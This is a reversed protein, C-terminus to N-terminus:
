LLDIMQEGHHDPNGLLRHNVPDVIMDLGELAMQGLLVPSEDHVESVEVVCERGQVTLRVAEYIKFDFLGVPTRGKRTRFHQLGLQEILRKPISLLTAGTDAMADPIEIRRVSEDTIQGRSVAYLDNLNEIKAEVLVRGM